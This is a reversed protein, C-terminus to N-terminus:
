MLWWHTPLHCRLRVETLNRKTEWSVAPRNSRAVICGGAWIRVLGWSLVPRGGRMIALKMM